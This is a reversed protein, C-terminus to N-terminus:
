THSRSRQSRIELSMLNQRNQLANARETIRFDWLPSHFDCRRTGASQRFLSQISSASLEDKTSWRALRPGRMGLKKVGEELQEAALDLATTGGFVPRYFAGSAFPLTGIAQNQINIFKRALYEDAGTGTPILELSKSMSGMNTWRRWVPRVRQTRFIGSVARAFSSVRFDFHTYISGCASETLTGFFLTASALKNRRM